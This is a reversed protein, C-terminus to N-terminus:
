AACNLIAIHNVRQSMNWILMTMINAVCVTVAIYDESYIRCYKNAPGTYDIQIQYFYQITWTTSFYKLLVIKLPLITWERHCTESWCDHHQLVNHSCHLKWLLNKLVQRCTRDFTYYIQIQYSRKKMYNFTNVRCYPENEAVHKLDFHDHHETHEDCLDYYSPFWYTKHCILSFLYYQIESPVNKAMVLILWVRYVPNWGFGQFIWM